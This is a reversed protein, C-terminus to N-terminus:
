FRYGVGLGAFKITETDVRYRTWDATLWWNDIVAYQLAFGLSSDTGSTAVRSISSGNISATNYKSNWRLVGAKGSVAFRPTFSYRGTAVLEAGAASRPQARAVDSLLGNVDNVAGSLTAGVDGLNAYGAQVGIYRTLQYGAFVNWARRQRDDYEAVVDYGSSSLALNLDSETQEGRALGIQAGLYLGTDQAFATVSVTMCLALLARAKWRFRLALLAVGLLLLSPDIAGGGGSTNGSGRTSITVSALAAVGGPDSVTGNAQGDDDNPGGDSITLRVCWDGTNLGARYETSNPPPCYGQQGPASSLRNTDNQVFDIWSRTQSEYKRYVANAPVPAHQPLVVNVSQGAQALDSVVFDFYGGVNSITDDGILINDPAIQAQAKGFYLAYPGLRMQVGPDGEVLFQNLERSFEPLVNPTPPSYAPDDPLGNAALNQVGAPLTPVSDLLALDLTGRTSLAPSGSDTISVEFRHVGAPLSTPQLVLQTGSTTISAGSPATWQVTHTDTSNADQVNADLVISGLSRAFVFSQQGNQQASPRAVPAVNATVLNVTLRSRQDLNLDSALQVVVQQNPTGAAPTSTISFPIDKETEGDNFVV